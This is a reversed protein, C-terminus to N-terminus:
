NNSENEAKKTKLSTKQNTKDMELNMPDNLCNINNIEPSNYDDIDKIVFHMIKM